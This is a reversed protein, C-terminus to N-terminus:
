TGRVSVAIILKGVCYAAPHQCRFSSGIGIFGALGMSLVSLVCDPRILDTECHLPIIVLDFHCM